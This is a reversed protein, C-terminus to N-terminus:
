LLFLKYPLAKLTVICLYNETYITIRNINSCNMVVSLHLDQWLEIDKTYESFTSSVM